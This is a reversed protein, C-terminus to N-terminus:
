RTNAVMFDIAQKKRATNGWVIAQSHSGGAVKVFTAPVGAKRLYYHLAQSESWPVSTDATGHFLLFPADNSSAQTAPNLDLWRNWCAADKRDPKCRTLYETHEAVWTFGAGQVFGSSKAYAANKSYLWGRYPDNVGSASIVARTRSGGVTYTGLTSVIHGGASAGYLGGRHPNIGFTKAHAKIWALAAAADYRQAPWAAEGSLRYNINFVVFGAAKFAEVPLAMGSKDGSWWSGGHVVMVWPRGSQGPTYHADLAQSPSTAGYRFTKVVSGAAAAPTPAGALPLLAAVALLVISATARRFSV